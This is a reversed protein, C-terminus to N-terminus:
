PARRENLRERCPGCRAAEGSWARCQVCRQAARLREYAGGDYRRYRVKQSPWCMPQCYVRAAHAEFRNGCTPCVKTRKPVHDVPRLRVGLPLIHGNPHVKWSSTPPPLGALDRM